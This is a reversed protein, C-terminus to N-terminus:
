RAPPESRKEADRRQEAERRADVTKDKVDHGAERVEAAARRSADAIQEGTRELAVEVKKSATVADRKAHERDVPDCAALSLACAAVAAARLYNANM